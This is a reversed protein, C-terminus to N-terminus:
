KALLVQKIIFFIDTQDLLGSVLHAGPGYAAIRIQAGTHEQSDTDSTGYSVTMLSGDRSVLTQTLGPAKANNPILQSSHAHDATVIVLTKGDTGAFDLAVQVAEDLDVTEGIQGCPNAAHDQKDISAGEIQLFFGNPNANLLEIAKSTMQALNPIDVTRQPNSQCMVPREIPNGGHVAKPGLWRVPMNGSAFLGLVPERTNQKTLANMEDLNEVIVFGRKQAQSLLTQDKYPGTKATENFTEKGGGFIVDPPSALMQETISGAGGQELANTPCLKSTVEPGYCKRSTVHALLAAPTADQIEATTVNGTAMGSSRAIEILNPHAVGYVDVGIAGNYTKIGTAWATASGASDAVHNIHHSQRELTYTTISGTHLLADLGKFAGSAGQAYNRAITIESDGMGDGILLIVNKIDNNNLMVKLDNLMEDPLRRAGGQEIINGYASRDSNEKANAASLAQITCLGTLLLATTLQKLNICKKYM